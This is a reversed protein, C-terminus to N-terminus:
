PRGRLDLLKSVLPALDLDNVQEVTAVAAAPWASGGHTAGLVAGAMAAITDTDGGLSAAQCLADWPDDALAALALAAVVSEQAAVSTGVVDILATERDAAGLSALHPLAWRLRAAISGGAVWYGRRGGEDAAAVAVEVAEPLSAGGVGASVAAGVAAAAAIGIGTNHTPASTRAVVDVFSTLDAADVAIGVPTIRMAAGNTAGTRGAEEAPVGDQLRALAAKTSPGLLDLSGRERMRDEWALLRRALVVPDVVGGGEVLLEALLVAQETDDTISGAAMGAAIRQRPGADALGTIPGHDALIEARSMSQTPMGLADGLALGRFAALARDHLDM